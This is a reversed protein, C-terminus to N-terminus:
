ENSNEELKEKIKDLQYSLVLFYICSTIMLFAQGLFLNEM